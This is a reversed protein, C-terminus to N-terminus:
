RRGQEILQQITAVGGLTQGNRLERIDAAAQAPASPGSGFSQFGPRSAFSSAIQLREQVLAEVAMGRAEAEHLVQEPIDVTMVM